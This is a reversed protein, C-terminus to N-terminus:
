KRQQSLYQVIERKDREKACELPTGWLSDKFNLDAGAEVLIKVIELRDYRIANFIPTSKELSGSFGDKISRIANVNAGKEILIRAIEPDEVEFLPTKNRHDNSLGSGYDSNANRQNPDAGSDLLALVVEKKNNQVAWFLPSLGLIDLVDLKAGNEVLEKIVDGSNTTFLPTEGDNNKSNPDAGNKILIEAIEGTKACHLPTNGSENKSDPDAGNEILTEAVEGTKAHHLPTNGRVDKSNVDAGNEILVRAVDGTQVCQIPLCDSGAKANVNAGASILFEAVDAAKTTHLPTLGEEWGTRVNVDAGASVLFKAVDLSEVFHLPALGEDDKGNVDAGRGVLFKIVNLDANERVAMLLFQTANAATIYQIDRGKGSFFEAAEKQGVESSAPQKEEQVAIKETPAETPATVAENSPVPPAPAAPPTSSPVAPSNANAPVNPVPNAPAVNEAAVNNSAQTQEFGKKHMLTFVIVAGILVIVVTNLIGVGILIRMLNNKKREHPAVYPKPSSAASSASNQSGATSQAPFLWKLQYAYGKNGAENEIITKPTVTGNMTQFKLETPSIPGRKVGDQDYYFWSGM